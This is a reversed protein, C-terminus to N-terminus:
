AFSRRKIGFTSTQKELKRGEDQYAHVTRGISILGPIIKADPKEIREVCAHSIQDGTPLSDNQCAVDIDRSVYDVGRVGLLM